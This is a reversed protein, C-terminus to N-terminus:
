LILAAERERAALTICGTGSADQGHAREGARPRWLVCGHRGPGCRITPGSSGAGLVSIIALASRGEGDVAGRGWNSWVDEDFCLLM